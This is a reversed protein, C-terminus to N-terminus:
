QVDPIEQAESRQLVLALLHQVELVVIEDFLHSPVEHEMEDWHELKFQRLLKQEDELLM